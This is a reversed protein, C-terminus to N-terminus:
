PNKLIISGCIGLIYPKCFPIEWLPVNPDPYMWSDGSQHLYHYEVVIDIVINFFSINFNVYKWFIFPQFIIWKRKPHNGKKPSCTVSRYALTTISFPVQWSVNIMSFRSIGNSHQLLIHLVLIRFPPSSTCFCAFVLVYIISYISFPPQVVFLINFCTEKHQVVTEISQQRANVFHNLNTLSTNKKLHLVPTWRIHDPFM